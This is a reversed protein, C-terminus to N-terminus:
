LFAGPASPLRPKALSLAYDVLHKLVAAASQPDRANCSLVPAEDSLDLADRVEDETYRHAGDFENVAVLFPMRRQEFYSIATFSDALRRTDALVVAGIAGQALEAWTFLFRDQGPTGFIYLILPDPEPFTIRGFDMSVTTTTKSEVGALSDTASSAKTLVEETALPPIDSVAGVMTTKGVGFGGAIVIKLLVPAAARDPLM